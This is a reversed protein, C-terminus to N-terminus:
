IVNKRMIKEIILFDNKIVKGLNIKKWMKLVDNSCKFVM